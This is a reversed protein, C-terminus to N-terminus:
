RRRRLLMCGAMGLLSILGPEPVANVKGFLGHDEDDPGAAFYLTDKSGGNGGNGFTIGWLGQISLPNGNTDSLTGLFTGTNPDYGNIAGDGFNGVLLANSLAGFNAPALALGWPANLNGGSAIRKLFNGNADFASVYGFGAGAVEDPSNPDQQAFTVYLNSGLKQVNFPAYGAPLNPDTFSGPLAAPAFNGTFASVKGNKFDAAYLINGVGNNALTLGKYVAGPTSVAPQAATSPSPPPVNPNWGNITGDEAAFLFVAPASAAGNSVVFDTSSNAVTGTIAASNPMSVVLSSKTFASGNVDGSYITATGTGNNAVWFPSTATMAIGWSNVLNADQIPAIGPQDSVLNTVLYGPAASVGTSLAAVAIGMAAAYLVSRSIQVKRMVGEGFIVLVNSWDTTVHELCAIM